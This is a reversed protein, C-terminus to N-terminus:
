AARRAVRIPSSNATALFAPANTELALKQAAINDEDPVRDSVHGCINTVRDGNDDLEFVNHQRGLRILYRKGDSGTTTFEQRARYDATQQEDLISLLLAEARAKAEAAARDRALQEEARRREAELREQERVAAREASRRAYEEATPDAPLERIFGKLEDNWVLGAM